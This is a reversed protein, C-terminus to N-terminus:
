TLHTGRIVDVMHRFTDADVHASNIRVSEMGADRLSRIFEATCRVDAVTAMVSHKKM